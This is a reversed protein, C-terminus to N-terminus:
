NVHVKESCAIWFIHSSSPLVFINHSFSQIMLQSHGFFVRIFYLKGLLASKLCIEFCVSACCLVIIAIVNFHLLLYLLAPSFLLTPTLIGLLPNDSVKRPPFFLHFIRGLTDTGCIRLCIDTLILNPVKPLPAIRQSASCSHLQELGGQVILFPRSEEQGWGVAAPSHLLQTPASGASLSDRTCGELQQPWGLRHRPSPVFEGRHDALDM